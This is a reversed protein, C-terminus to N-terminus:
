ESVGRLPPPRRRALRRTIIWATLAVLAIALAIALAAPRAAPAPRALALTGELALPAGGLEFGTATWDLPLPEPLPRTEDLARFPVRFTPGEATAVLEPRRLEVAQQPAFFLDPAAAFLGPAALRLELTSWPYEGALWRAAVEVRPEVDDVPRPLRARFADLRPALKPDERPDGVPLVLELEATYPVCEERCVLYDLRGALSLESQAVAEIAADLPYVVRGEYGFSVLGGPLEYREPAPFRLAVPGLGLAALELEPPYGADGSNKWYVHWGPLLEFEVGLGADGAAPASAWRSLLRVKAEPAVSWPGAIGHVPSALFAVFATALAALAARDRPSLTM